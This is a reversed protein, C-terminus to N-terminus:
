DTQKVRHKGPKLGNRQRGAVRHKTERRNRKGVPDVVAILDRVERRGTGSLPVGTTPDVTM